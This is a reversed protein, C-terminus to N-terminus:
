GAVPEHGHEQQRRWMAAYVGDQRLLADHRGREVIRGEDLVIIEDAQVITSLRHAVILTTTGRSLTELNRQILRETASDLASTAEDFVFIRPRKLVARAIAVRQKEGGSLKLGREGVVTAYGDPLGAVFDHIEALRAAEEIEARSASARGIAINYEITDNFLATDQPVVAIAARLSALTVYGIRHDDITIEGGTPDYFRFLLRSLTSKGSGSPGVVALTRGAPIRFSVDDIVVGRRADYAFSVRDFVIEGPGPPLAPADGREKVEPREALLELLHEVYGLGLKIERYALGLTELPRALQIMYANVLVFDGISMTGDVVRVAALAVLAAFGLTLWVSQVLGTATRWKYFSSWGDEGRTLAEDLHARVTTEGAFYKVTEFNIFSDAARAFADVYAANAARQPGRQRQASFSRSSCRRM